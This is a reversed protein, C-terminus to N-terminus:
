VRSFPKNQAAAKLHARGVAAQGFAIGGDNAPVSRPLWVALGSARLAASLGEALARNMLCGGGLVVDIRGARGAAQVIWERLGQILAGHFLEAGHRATLGPEILRELLPRFDLIDGEVQFGGPALVPVNCLAELEMAAQGEYSQRQRVGLLAAAADFLRGMSTTMLPAPSAAVAASLAGALAQNPFRDAAEEARSLAVLAAVGMRWPERAARDGGPLALPLLHGIRRWHAGQGLMLEGGWAGAHDGLGYGDLAVGIV